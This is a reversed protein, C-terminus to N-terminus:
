FRRCIRRQDNIAAPETRIPQQVHDCIANSGLFTYIGGRDFTRHAALQRADHAVHLVAASREM